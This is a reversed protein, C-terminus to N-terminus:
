LIVIPYVFGKEITLQYDHYVVDSTGAASITFTEAIYGCSRGVEFYITLNVAVENYRGAYFTWSGLSNPCLQNPPLVGSASAPPALAVAGVAVGLAAAALKRRWTMSISRQRTPTSASFPGAVAVARVEWSRNM